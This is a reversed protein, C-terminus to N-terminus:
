QELIGWYDNVTNLTSATWGQLIPVRIPPIVFAFENSALTGAGLTITTPSGGPPIFQSTTVDTSSTVVIGCGWVIRGDKMKVQLIDGDAIIQKLNVGILYAIQPSNNTYGPAKVNVM